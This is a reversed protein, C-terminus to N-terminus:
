PKRSLGAKRACRKHWDTTVATGGGGDEPFTEGVTVAKRAPLQQGCGTCEVQRSRGQRWRRVAAALRPVVVGAAFGIAAVTAGFAIAEM